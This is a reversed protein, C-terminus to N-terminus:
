IPGTFRSPVHPREQREGEPLMEARIGPHIHRQPNGIVSELTDGIVFYAASNRPPKSAFPFIWAGLVLSWPLELCWIGFFCKARGSPLMLRIESAKCDSSIVPRRVFLVDM